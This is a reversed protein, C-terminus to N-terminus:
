RCCTLRATSLIHLGTRCWRTLVACGYCQHLGFNGLGVNIEQRSKVQQPMDQRPCASSKLSSSMSPDPARERWGCGQRRSCRTCGHAVRRFLRMSVQRMSLHCRRIQRRHLRCRCTLLTWHFDASGYSRIHRFGVLESELVDWGKGLGAQYYRGVSTCNQRKLHSAIPLPWGPQSLAHFIVPEVVVGPM